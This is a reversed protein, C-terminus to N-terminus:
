AAILKARMADLVDPGVGIAELYATRSGHRAEMAAWAARLFDAHVGVMPALAEESLRKGLREEFRVAFERLRDAFGPQRNTALYDAEIAADDVGLAHLVLGCLIGTRDKGAACHIVLPRDDEALARFTAGFTEVHQPFWPFQSYSGVMWDHTAQPTLDTELLFQIHPPLAATDDPGRESLDSAITTVGLGDLQNPQLAREQVRRLDVVTRLGMDRVASRGAETIENFHATRFLVGRRVRGGSGAVAAGGFDRANAVGEIDVFM